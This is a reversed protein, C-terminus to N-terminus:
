ELNRAAGPIDAVVTPVPTGCEPCRYRTARLDYGCSACAGPTRMTRIRRRLHIAPLLSCLLLGAWHPVLITDSTQVPTPPTTMLRAGGRTWGFGAVQSRGFGRRFEPAPVLSVHRLGFPSADVWPQRPLLRREVRLALEGRSSSVGFSLRNGTWTVWDARRFSMGWSVALCGVLLVSVVWACMLFMRRM